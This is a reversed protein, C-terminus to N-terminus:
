EKVSNEAAGLVVKNAVMAGSNIGKIFPSLYEVLNRKKIM